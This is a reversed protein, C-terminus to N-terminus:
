NGFMKSRLRDNNQNWNNLKKQQDKKYMEYKYEQEYKYENWTAEISKFLKTPQFLDREQPDTSWNIDNQWKQERPKTFQKKTNTTTSQGKALLLPHTSGLANMELRGEKLSTVQGAEKNAYVFFETGRVGIAATRTQMKFKLNKHSKDASLVKVVVSGISLHAMPVARNIRIKMKSKQNVKIMSTVSNDSNEVRILVVAHDKTIVYDGENLLEGKSLPTTKKNAYRFSKGVTFIVKAINQHKVPLSEVAAHTYSLTFIFVLLFLRM